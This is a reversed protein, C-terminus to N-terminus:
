RVFTPQPRRGRGRDVRFGHFFRRNRGLILGIILWVFRLVGEIDKIYFINPWDLSNSLIGEEGHKQGEMLSYMDTLTTEAKENGGLDKLISTDLSSCLLKFCYLDTGTIPTESKRMFWCKFNYGLYSIKVPANRGTNVKFKESVVFKTTTAPVKVTCVLKLLEISKKLTDLFRAFSADDLAKQFKVRGVGKDNAMQRLSEVQRSTVLKNSM